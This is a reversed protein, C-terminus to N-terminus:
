EDRMSKEEGYEEHKEANDNEDCDQARWMEYISADVISQCAETLAHVRNNLRVKQEGRGSTSGAECASSRTCEKKAAEKM